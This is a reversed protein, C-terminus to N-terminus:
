LFPNNVNKHGLTHDEYKHGLYRTFIITAIKSLASSTMFFSVLHMKVNWINM